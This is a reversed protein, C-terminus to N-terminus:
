SISSSGHLEFIRISERMVVQSWSNYGNPLKVKHPTGKFSNNFVAIVSHRARNELNSGAFFMFDYHRKPTLPWKRHMKIVDYAIEGRFVGINFHHRRRYADTWRGSSKMLRVLFALRFMDACGFSQMTKCVYIWGRDIRKGQMVSM